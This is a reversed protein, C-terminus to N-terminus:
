INTEMKENLFKIIDKPPSYSVQFKEMEYKYNNIIANGIHTLSEAGNSDLIIRSDTKSAVRCAIRAPFNAKILGTIVDVSPRQTALVCYIGSARCKQVLRCLLNYAVHDTDQMSLDAFEDIVLVVPKFHKNDALNFDGHQKIFAYRKEMLFVLYELLTKYDGFNDIVKCRSTLRAYQSFEIAKTDIVHLDANTRLLLNSIITHLLSSKGSGTAGGILLHPNKSVDVSVKSGQFSTGLVMPLFEDSNRTADSLNELLSSAQQRESMIEVELLGKDFNIKISPTSFGRMTLMLEQSLKSFGGLRFNNDTKLDYIDMCGKKTAGICQAQIKNAVLFSNLIAVKEM